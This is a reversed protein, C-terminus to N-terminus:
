DPGFTQVINKKYKGENPAENLIDKWNKAPTDQKWSVTHTMRQESVLQTSDVSKKFFETQVHINISVFAM